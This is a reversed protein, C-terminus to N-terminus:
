FACRAKEQDEVLLVWVLFYMWISINYTYKCMVNLVMSDELASKPLRPNSGECKLMKGDDDPSPRFVVTSTVTSGNTSQTMQLCFSFLVSTNSPVM